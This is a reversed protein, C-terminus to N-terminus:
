PWSKPSLNQPSFLLEFRSFCVIILLLGVVIISFLNSIYLPSLLINQNQEEVKFFLASPCQDCSICNQWDSEAFFSCIANESLKYKQRTSRVFVMYQVNLECRSPQFLRGNGVSDELIKVSSFDSGNQGFDTQGVNAMLYLFSESELLSWCHLSEFVDL